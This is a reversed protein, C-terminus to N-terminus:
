KKNAIFAATMQAEFETLTIKKQAFEDYIPGLTNTRFADTFYYQDWSYVKGSAVWAQVSQSLQGAPKLTINKFAPIMGADTVMYKQGSASTVMYNLFDKVAQLHKSDKNVVYWAPPSVFIGDTVAASSGHPAFAMKFTATTLNGDVWNGQHLFVAKQNLFAGVQADYNGTTLITQDAYNFLLEVWKAYEDLRTQDVTGALLANTVSLDGYALGNSLLSNFNHHATVWNMSTGAVMSVVSDIGLEAKMGDLKEFAAVYGAYSNLTSPDIGAQDLLDKNYAMGWGEVAVPFGVTKGDVKYAVSTQQVWAENSLDAIISAWDNYAAIGDIPFIDPMTGAQYDAKLMDGLNCSDGGCSTAVVKIGTEAEYAKAYAQVAADIEPKNQKWTIVITEKKACATLSMFVMFLSLLVLLKKMKGEQQIFGNYSYDSELLLHKKTYDNVTLSSLILDHTGDIFDCEQSFDANCGDGTDDVIGACNGWFGFGTNQFHDLFQIVLGVGHTRQQSFLVCAHDQDHKMTNVIREERRDYLANFIERLGVPHINQNARGIPILKALLMIQLQQLGTKHVPDQQNGVSQAKVLDVFEITLIGQNLDYFVLFARIGRVERDIKIFGCGSQNFPQNFVTMPVDSKNMGSQNVDDRGLHFVLSVAIGHLFVTQFRLEIIGAFMLEPILRSAFHRSFDQLIM